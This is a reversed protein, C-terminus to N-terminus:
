SYRETTHITTPTMWDIVVCMPSNPKPAYANLRGAHAQLFLFCDVPTYIGFEEALSLLKQAGRKSYMTAVCCYGQYVRAMTPKGYDFEYTKEGAKILTKPHGTEDYVQRYYFDQRQNDPVSLSVFDWDEPLDDIYMALISGIAPSIIADDEFVILSDHESKVLYDWTQIQSLWVGLEGLKPVWEKPRINPYKALIRDLQERNVANVFEIDTIEPFDLLSRLAEKHAARQDNVSIITFPISM